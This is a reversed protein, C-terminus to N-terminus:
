LTIAVIASLPSEAGSWGQLVPTVSYRWTGLGPGSETCTTGTVVGACTGGVVAEAGSVANYRRIRYGQVPAGAVTSATWTVTGTTLVGVALPMSGAGVTAARAAAPVSGAAVWAGAAAPALLLALAVVILRQRGHRHRPHLLRRGPV